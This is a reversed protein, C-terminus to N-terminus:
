EDWCPPSYCSCGDSVRCGCLHLGAARYAAEEAEAQAKDEAERRACEEPSLFLIRGGEQGDDEWYRVLGSPPEHAWLSDLCAEMSTM